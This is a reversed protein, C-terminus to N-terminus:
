ESPTTPAEGPRVGNPGGVCGTSLATPKLIPNILRMLRNLCSILFCIFLLPVPRTISCLIGPVLSPLVTPLFLALYRGCRVITLDAEAAQLLILDYEGLQNGLRALLPGIGSTISASAYYDLIVNTALQGLETAIQQVFGQGFDLGFGYTHCGSIILLKM